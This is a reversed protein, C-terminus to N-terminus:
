DEEGDFCMCADDVTEPFLKLQARDADVVERWSWARGLGRVTPGNNPAATDEMELARAYLNPAEKALQIVERKKMAPCFWCASKGPVELRARQIAEICEERAWDWDVLPRRYVWRPDEISMLNASRHAEGADIGIMRVVREGSEWAHQVRAQGRLWRDMPQRKWKASCGKNGYALSPLTANNLCELELSAHQFNPRDANSVRTIPPFGVRSCWAGVERVHAYTSEREGGTDAFLIFDPREGREWLGVLLATSNVGGGFSVVTLPEDM